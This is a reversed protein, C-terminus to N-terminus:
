VPGGGGAHPPAYDGQLFLCVGVRHWWTPMAAASSACVENDGYNDNEEGVKDGNAVAANDDADDGTGVIAVTAV